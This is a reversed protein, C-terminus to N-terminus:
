PLELLALLIKVAPNDFEARRLASGNFGASTPAAKEPVTELMVVSVPALTELPWVM